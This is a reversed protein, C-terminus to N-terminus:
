AFPAEPPLISRRGATLTLASHAPEPSLPQQTEM